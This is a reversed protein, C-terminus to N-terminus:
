KRQLARAQLWVAGDLGVLRWDEVCSGDIVANGRHRLVPKPPMGAPPHGFGGGDRCCLRAKPVANTVGRHNRIKQLSESSCYLQLKITLM